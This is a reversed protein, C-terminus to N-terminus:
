WIQIDTVKGLDLTTDGIYLISSTTGKIKHIFYPYDMSLIGNICIRKARTHCYWDRNKKHSEIVLRIVRQRDMHIEHHWAREMSAKVKTKREATRSATKQKRYLYIVTGKYTLM